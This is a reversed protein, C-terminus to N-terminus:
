DTVVVAIPDGPELLGTDEALIERLTGAVGAKVEAFQKMIEILGLTSDPTVKAGPEVFPPETPAPCRYFVGPMPARVTHEAM